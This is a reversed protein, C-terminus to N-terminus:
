GVGREVKSLWEKMGILQAMEAEHHQWWLREYTRCHMGKPNEPFSEMINASGDLRERIEHAEHLTRYM